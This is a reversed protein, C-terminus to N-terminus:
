ASRARVANNLRRTAPALMLVRQRLPAVRAPLAPDGQRGIADLLRLLERRRAEFQDLSLGGSIQRTAADRLAEVTAAERPPRSIPCAASRRFM